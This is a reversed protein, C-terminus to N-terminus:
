IFVFGAARRHTREPTLRRDRTIAIAAEVADHRGVSCPAFRM